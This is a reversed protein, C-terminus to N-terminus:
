GGCGSFERWSGGSPKAGYLLGARVHCDQDVERVDVEAEGFVEVACSNRDDPEDARLEPGPLAAAEAPHLGSDVAHENDEGELLGEVALAADVGGEDAVREGFERGDLGGALLVGGAVVEVGVAGPDGQEGAAAPGLDAGVERGEVFQGHAVEDGRGGALGGEVAASDVGGTVGGGLGAVFKQKGDGAGDALCIEAGEQGVEVAVVELVEAGFGGREAQGKDGVGAFGEVWARAETTALPM